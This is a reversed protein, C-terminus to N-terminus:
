HPPPRAQQMRRIIQEQERQEVDRGADRLARVLWQRVPVLTPNYRLSQRAAEIGESSRGLAALIDARLAHARADGPDIELLRDACELAQKRDSALYYVDLLGSVAAEEAAPIGRAEELCGRALDSLGHETGLSGLAILVTGDDPVQERVRELLRILDVPRQRGTKSLHKWVALGLARDRESDALRLDARDFFALVEDAADPGASDRSASDHPDDRRPQAANRVVRHDTQTVHAVNSAERAPMHCAICSDDKELRLEIDAACSAAQHCKLCRERYFAAREQVPPVRHPDHCSICGFRGDSHAFCRSERMQQVHSVARTRGDETVGGGQDFSTWIQELREGPRFDLDSRGYRPIRAAAQLHCQNCVSERREPDLRAPNVIVEALAAAAPGSQQREIHQQGPGHCNECGISMEHFAPDRYTNLSRGVPAVRGAHCGLCEDTIRRDFRRPDDQAYGPALDWKQSQTYWNLPSMFLLGGRRHLYANARRGSGVSYEMTVAQDYIQEGRADFMREHHRMAGDRIEVELVRQKGAVQAPPGHGVDDESNLEVRSVSRSMPHTRYSESIEAHCAACAQSGAYGQTSPPEWAATGPARTAPAYKGDAVAASRVHGPQESATRSRWLASMWVTMGGAAMLLFIGLLVVARQRFARETAANSKSDMNPM